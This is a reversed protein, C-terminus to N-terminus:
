RPAAVPRAASTRSWDVWTRWGGALNAARFGSQMLIRVANYARQGVGCYVVLEQERPLEDLRERLQGLPINVARPLHGAAFEAPERVDLLFATELLEASWPALRLDGAVVNAAIMGALNVPDKASGYQPAYSLEAEELDFVTGGQQIVASIVDIRKEVGSEGVAQAGLVKGDSTRFLLKLSLPRAGPYYGAHHGPHLYAAAHELGLRKLTKESAGTCAATLGFVGVVATGQVGRFRAERGCISEAALRAQRQAPGALALTTREGTVVDQVEVADGVAWISPDTTRMQEDVRIAGRAGLELGASRALETEPRVGLALIVVDAPLKRGTTTLVVPGSEIGALGEGLLVEVGHRKLEDAIPAAMEPDLPPLVQPMLELLTVALGRRALNEAMELGIFGAGAVVASRAKREAIWDRIHRADPVTRLTFIGPQEIGPVAPRLPTAGPALVLADYRESYEQGRELDRIHLTRAQRDVRVAEHLTRVDIRFRQRFLSPTAVLLASEQEIVDGVHYPLGCNAFSVHPGRELLIIEAQEDLRRLRTACSAGGAVGGVIIIKKSM